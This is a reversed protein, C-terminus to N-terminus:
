RRHLLEVVGALGEDGHGDEVRRRMLSFLPALLETSVGQARGLGALVDQAAVQMALGSEAKPYTGKATQAAMEPLGAAMAGLWPVLLATTFEEVDAGASRVLAASQLFGAFMGYMGTLLALDHLPAQGPDDGLFVARGFVGLVERHAEFAPTSGSYLVLAEPRGIMAPVAMVGGDLYDAGLARVKVALERAEQPSGNTLNVVVRGRLAAGATDVLAHVDAYGLVCFVVLDGAAAADAVRAARLAGREVLPDAKAPTRNWVTTTHGAALLADALATGMAGLGVVSVSSM